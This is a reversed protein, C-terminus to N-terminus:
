EQMLVCTSSYYILFKSGQFKFSRFGIKMIKCFANLINYIFIVVFCVDNQDVGFASAILREINSNVTQTLRDCRVPDSSRLFYNSLVCVDEFEWIFARKYHGDPSSGECHNKKRKTAKGKLFIM